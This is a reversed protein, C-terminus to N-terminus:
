RGGGGPRGGAPPTSGGGERQLGPLQSRSRMREQNEDRQIQLAIAGLLAVTEGEQVGSLIETYDFNAVGIQVVRPEFSM